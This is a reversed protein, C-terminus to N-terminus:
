RFYPFNRVPLGADSGHNSGPTTVQRGVPGLIDLAGNGERIEFDLSFRKLERAADKEFPINSEWQFPDEADEVANLDIHDRIFHGVERIFSSRPLVRSLYYMVLEYAARRQPTM